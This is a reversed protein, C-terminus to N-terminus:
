KAGGMGLFQKFDRVYSRSVELRMAGERMKLLLRGGFWPIIEAVWLVNVVLSKGVRIFGRSRYAAEIEYLRQEVEFAGSPLEATIIDGDAKFCLIQRIPLITYADKRRGAIFEPGMSPRAGPSPQAGTSLAAAARLLELLGPVDRCDFVIVIGRDPCPLGREVVHVLGEGHIARGLREVVPQLQRRAEESARLVVEAMQGEGIVDRQGQAGQCGDQLEQKVQVGLISNGVQRDVCPDPLVEPGPQRFFLNKESM